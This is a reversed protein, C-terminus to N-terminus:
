ENAKALEEKLTKIEKKLEIMKLERDVTLKNMKELEEIHKKHKEELEKKDNIVIRLAAYNKIKGDEGLIPVVTADVWYYSGDKARNKIEGRWMKGRSITAWMEVFMEQPQHGSKLIRHNQGILEDIGYQSIEIFKQNVFIIDGKEDTVSFISDEALAGIIAEYVNPNLDLQKSKYKNILSIM